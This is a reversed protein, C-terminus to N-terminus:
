RKVSHNKKAPAQKKHKNRKIKKWRGGGKWGNGYANVIGAFVLVENKQKESARDVIKEALYFPGSGTIQRRALWKEPGPLITESGRRPHSSPRSLRHNYDPIHREAGLASGAKFGM